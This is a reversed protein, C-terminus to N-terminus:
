VKRAFLNRFDGDFRSLFEHMDLVDDYSLQPLAELRRRELPTVENPAPQVGDKLSVWFMQQSHCKTCKASVVWLKEHRAVVGFRDRDFRRNCNQCRYTSLLQKLLREQGGEM